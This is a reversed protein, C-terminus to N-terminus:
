ISLRTPYADESVTALRARRFLSPYLASRPRHRRSEDRCSVSVPQSAILFHNATPLVRFSRSLFPASSKAGWRLLRPGGHYCAPACSGLSPGGEGGGSRFSQHFPSESSIKRVERDARCGVGDCRMRLVKSGDGRWEDTGRIGRWGRLGVCM